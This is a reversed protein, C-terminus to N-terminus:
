SVTSSRPSCRQPFRPVFASTERRYRRYDDGRSRLAQEEAPKVGTVLLVLCLMLPYSLLGLWGWPAALAVLGYALWTLTQFFYNPHRSYRWLGTRMTRGRNAPDAKFRRLQEDATRELTAAALWLAAGAWEVWALGPRPNFAALVFPLALVAAVFAQAQYFVAFTRQERGRERWRRRLERYRADEEGDLRRLVLLAIRLNELGAITAILVRHSLAGPGLAACLAAIAVLSAAWGADVATANRSRLQVLYLAGLLAAATAWGLLWLEWRHDIV